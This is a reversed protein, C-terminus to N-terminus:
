DKERYCVRRAAEFVKDTSVLTLKELNAAYPMPVDAGSVRAIPADLYDFADEMFIASLEATIGCTSWGQEVVVGRYTKKLSNLVTAKDLPRLTRLDIVEAEIGEEEALREAAELTPAMTTAFSILTVDSGERVIKAKGIPLVYDDVKPVKFKKGYLLESELFVVPNPDRIAAKLLGKADAADYPAIVRFGPVQAYWSSYCQSHQAAVRAAPGNPGRFVIPVKMKGGSMYLQKAASN